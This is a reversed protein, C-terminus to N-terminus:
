EEEESALVVHVDGHDDLRRFGGIEEIHRYEGDVEIMLVDSDNMGDLDERAQKVTYSV